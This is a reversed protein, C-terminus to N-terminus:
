GPSLLKNGRKAEAGLPVINEGAAVRRSIQVRDEDRDKARDKARSTHEVMVVADTGAPVAAGTM